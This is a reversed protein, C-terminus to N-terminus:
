KTAMNGDKRICDLWNGAQFIWQTTKATKRDVSINDFGNIKM